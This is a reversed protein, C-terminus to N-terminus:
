KYNNEKNLTTTADLAIGGRINQKVTVSVEKPGIAAVIDEAIKQSLQECYAGYDRFAWLYFKLSKSEICKQAPIYEIILTSFDPQGTNPCVSTFEETEFKVLNCKDPAQFAHKKLLKAGENVSTPQAMPGQKPIKNESM